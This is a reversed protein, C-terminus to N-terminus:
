AARCVVRRCLVSHHQLEVDACYNCTVDNPARIVFMTCGKVHGSCAAM